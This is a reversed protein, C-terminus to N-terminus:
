AVKSLTDHPVPLPAALPVDPAAKHVLAVRGNEEEPLQEYGQRKLREINMANKPEVTAKVDIGQENWYATLARGAVAGVGHGRFQSGVFTAREVEDPQTPIMEAGGVLMGSLFIGMYKAGANQKQAEAVDEPTKFMNHLFLGGKELSKADRQILDVWRKRETNNSLERIVLKPKEPINIELPAVSGISEFNAATM